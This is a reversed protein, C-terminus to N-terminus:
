GRRECHNIWHTQADHGYARRARALGASGLNRDPLVGRKGCSPKVAILGNEDSTYTGILNNDEDKMTFVAGQLATEGDWETKKIIIGPRSNTVEDVRVNSNTNLEGREYEVTYTFDSPETDGIQTGSLTVSGGNDLRDLNTYSVVNGDDDVVPQTLKVEYIVYKSFDALGKVPLRDYYWYVTAQKM